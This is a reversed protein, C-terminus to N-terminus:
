NLFIMHGHSLDWPVFNSTLPFILCILTVTVPLSLEHGGFLLELVILEFQSEQLVEGGILLVLQQGLGFTLHGYKGHM